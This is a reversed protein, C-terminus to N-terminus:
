ARLRSALRPLLRLANGRDVAQRAAGSLAPDAEHDRTIVGVEEAPRAPWDTGFLVRSPGAAALLSPMAYPSAPMATDYHFRRVAAAVAGPALGEGQRAASEARGALYPLFGGAHSLIIRLDPHRDLTGSAILSLAARTTDFLFDAIFDPVGPIGSGGEPLSDPHVFVVARRRNLEAFLPEFAPDGLYRGDASTMLIVGDAGLEDLAYAAQELALDTHLVALNAFFGFRTPHDAALEAMAENCLRVGREATTRDRFAMSPIPASVVGAAIGNDEMTGLAGDLTWDAWTPGGEPPLLGAEVAWDHMARTLVHQHTDIRWAPPRDGGEAAALAPGAAATAGAAGLGAALSAAGAARLADRRSLARYAPGAPAPRTPPPTNM